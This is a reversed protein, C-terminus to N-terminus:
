YLLTVRIIKYHKIWEDPISSKKILCHGPSVIFDRIEIFYSENTTYQGSKNNQFFLYKDNICGFYGNGICVDNNQINELLVQISNPLLEDDQDLFIIYKGKAIKLGNIRSQHIGVNKSNNQIIINFKKLISKEIILPIEPSDNVLIIEIKYNIDKLINELMNLYQKLYKQGKYFPSIISIDM